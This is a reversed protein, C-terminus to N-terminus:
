LRITPDWEVDEWGVLKRCAALSYGHAFFTGRGPCPEELSKLSFIPGSYPSAQSRHYAVDDVYFTDTQAYYDLGDKHKTWIAGDPLRSSNLNWM